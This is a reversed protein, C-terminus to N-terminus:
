LLRVVLEQVETAVEMGMPLLRLQEQRDVAIIVYSPTVATDISVNIPLTYFYLAFKM